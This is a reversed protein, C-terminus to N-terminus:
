KRSSSERKPQGDRAVTTPSSSESITDEAKTAPKTSKASLLSRVEPELLDAVLKHGDDNWHWLDRTRYLYYGRRGEEQMMAPGISRVLRVGATASAQNVADSLPPVDEDYFAIMDANVGLDRRIRVLLDATKQTAKALLEDFHRPARHTGYDRVQGPVWQEHKYLIDEVRDSLSAYALSWAKLGRRTSAFHHTVSGDDRLYPRPGPTSLFPMADELELLNNIVDNSSMQLILLDPKIQSVFKELVLAQQFTGYGSCGFAWFEAEPFKRALEAWYAKDDDIDDAQTYSDGLILVRKKATTTDGWLRFGHPDQTMRFQTTRGIADRSQGTRVMNPTPVWGLESDLKRRAETTKASKQKLRLSLEVGVTILGLPLIAAMASFLIRKRLTMM